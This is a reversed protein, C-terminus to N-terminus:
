KGKRAGKAGSPDDAGPPMAPVPTPHGAVAAHGPGESPKGADTVPSPTTVKNPPELHGGRYGQFPDADQTAQVDATQFGLTNIDQNSGTNPVGGVGMGSQSVDAGTARIRDQARQKALARQGAPSKAWADWERLPENPDIPIGQPAGVTAQGRFVDASQLLSLEGRQAAAARAERLESSNGVRLRAAQGSDMVKNWDPVRKILEAHEPNEPDLTLPNGEDDTPQEHEFAKLPDKPDAARPGEAVAIRRGSLSAPRSAGHVPFAEDVMARATASALEADHLLEQAERRLRDKDGPDADQMAEIKDSLEVIRPDNEVRAAREESSGPVKRAFAGAGPFQYKGPM